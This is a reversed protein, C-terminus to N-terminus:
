YLPLGPLGHKEALEALIGLAELESIATDMTTQIFADQSRFGLGLSLTSASLPDPALRRLEPLGANMNQHQVVAPEWLFAASVQGNLLQELAIQNNYYPVRRWREEQPLSNLYTALQIDASTQIRTGIQQEFPLDTWHQLEPDATVFVSRSVHYPHSVLLWEWRSFAPTLALGMFVECDNALVYYIQAETLTLRYDLPESPRPPIVEIIEASLLQTAALESALDRHYDTVLNDAIICFRLVDGELRLRDRLLFEPGLPLQSFALSASCFIIITFITRLNM